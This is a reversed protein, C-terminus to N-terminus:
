SSSSNKGNAKRLYVALAELLEPKDKAFGLISNCNRCLFGRVKGTVHCHDVCIKNAGCGECENPINDIDIDIGYLTKLNSRRRKEPNKKSWDRDIARVKELNNKRYNTRRERMCTRCHGQSNVNDPTRLHGRKCHTKKKM